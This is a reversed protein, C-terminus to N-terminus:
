IKGLLRDRFGVDIPNEGIWISFLAKSFEIGEITGLPITNYTLTTGKGPIYTLAYRDGSNVDRYLRNLQNIKPYLRNYVENSVSEKIKITTADAFKSASIGVRYDLVLHRPINKLAQDSRIDEPLYLAGAYAEIFVLYRLLATGKLQLQYDSVTLIKYFSTGDVNITQAYVVSKSSLLIFMLSLNIFRLAFKKIDDSIKM